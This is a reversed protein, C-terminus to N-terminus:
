EQENIHLQKYAPRSEMHQKIRPVLCDYLKLPGDDSELRFEAEYVPNKLALALEAWKM